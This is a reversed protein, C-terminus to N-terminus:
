GQFRFRETWSMEPCPEHTTNRNSISSEHLVPNETTERLTVDYPFRAFSGSMFDFILVFVYFVDSAVIAM